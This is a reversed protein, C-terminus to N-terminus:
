DRLADAVAISSRNSALLRHSEGGIQEGCENCRGLEMAGGCEGIFYPHGNPCEYWHSNLGGGYDYGAVQNMAKLVEKLEKNSCKEKLDIAENVIEANINDEIVRNCTHDVKSKVQHLANWNMLLKCLDLRLVSSM